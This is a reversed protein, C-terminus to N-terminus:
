ATGDDEVVVQDTGDTESLEVHVKEARTTEVKTGVWTPQIPLERHGRDVLVAVEIVRPRGFDMIQDIAARTTRGTYCVDDVLVIRKGIVDGLCAEPVTFANRVNDRRQRTSLGVQPRTARSRVLWDDRLDPHGTRTMWFALLAAQNYQRSWYRFRNLPVPVVVDCETLVAVGARTMWAAMPRAIDLRDRYKLAHVLDRAVGDYRAVFLARDYATDDTFLDSDGGDYVPLDMAATQVSSRPVHGVFDVQRWCQPCLQGFDSLRNGCSVCQPPLLLDAARRGSRVVGEWWRRILSNTNQKM